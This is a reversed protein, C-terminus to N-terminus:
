EGTLIYIQNNLNSVRAGVLSIDNLVKYKRLREILEKQSPTKGQEVYEELESNLENELNRLDNLISKLLELEKNNESCLQENFRKFGIIRSSKM